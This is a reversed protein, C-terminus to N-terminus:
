LFFIFFVQIVQIKVIHNLAGVFTFKKEKIENYENRWSWNKIIIKDDSKKKNYKLIYFKILSTWTLM